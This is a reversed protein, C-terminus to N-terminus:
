RGRDIHYGGGLKLEPRVIPLGLLKKKFCLMRGERVYRDFCTPTGTWSYSRAKAMYDPRVGDDLILSNMADQLSDGQLRYDKLAVITACANIEDTTMLLSPIHRALLIAALISMMFIVMAITM